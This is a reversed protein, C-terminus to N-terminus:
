ARGTLDHWFTRKQERGYDGGTFHWDFLRPTLSDFLSLGLVSRVGRVAPRFAAASEEVEPPEEGDRCCFRPFLALIDIFVFSLILFDMPQHLRQEEVDPIRRLRQETLNSCKGRGTMESM